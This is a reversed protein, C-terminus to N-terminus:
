DTSLPSRRRFRNPLNRRCTRRGASKLIPTLSHVRRGSGASQALKELTLGGGRSSARHGAGELAHQIAGIMLARVRGVMVSGCRRRPRIYKVDVDASRAHRVAGAASAARESHSRRVRECRASLCRTGCRGGMSSCSSSAQMRAFAVDSTGCVRCHARRGREGPFQWRMPWSSAGWSGGLRQLLGEATAECRPLRLGTREGTTVSFGIDSAGDGSTEGDGLRGHEGSARVEPIEAAGSDGFVVGRVEVRTGANIAAPKM